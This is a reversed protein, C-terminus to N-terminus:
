LEKVFESTKGSPDAYHGRLKEPLLEALRYMMEDAMKERDEAKIKGGGPKEVIFPDGCRLHVKTRRLKRINSSLDLLGWQVMTYIPVGQRSAFFTTGPMAKKLAGNKSRTGEPAICLFNGDDLVSFCSRIAKMDMGGRDIPISQWAEMAMRTFFHEWLERKALAITRRPRLSMYFLPGELTTTHNTILIAPGSQPIKEVGEIEVKCTLKLFLSVIGNVLHEKFTMLVPQHLTPYHDLVRGKM